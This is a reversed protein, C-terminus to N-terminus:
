NSAVVGEKGGKQGLLGQKLSRTAGVVVWSPKQVRHMGCCAGFAVVLESDHLGSCMRVPKFTDPDDWNAKNHHIADFPCIILTGAPITHPGFRLDRKSIRTTGTSAVPKM